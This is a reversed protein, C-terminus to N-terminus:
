IDSRNVTGAPREREVAVARDDLVGDPHTPQGVFAECRCADRTSAEPRAVDLTDGGLQRTEIVHLGGGGTTRERIALTEADVVVQTEDTAMRRCSRRAHRRCRERGVRAREIRTMGRQKGAAPALTPDEIAVAVQVSSCMWMAGSATRM